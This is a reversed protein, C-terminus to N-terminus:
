IINEKQEWLYQNKSKKPKQKRQYCINWNPEYDPILVKWLYLLKSYWSCLWQSNRNCKVKFQYRFHEEKRFLSLYIQFIWEKSFLYIAMRLKFNEWPLYKKLRYFFKLFELGLGNWIFLDIVRAYLYLIMYTIFLLCCFYTELM